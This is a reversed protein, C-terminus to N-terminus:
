LTESQILLKGPNMIGAPDFCKKISRMIGIEVESRSYGLADRKLLGIGHEASISGGFAHVLKFIHESAEACRDRFQVGNLHDPKLVNLHLNGDGIHGYWVLVFDPYFRQCREAVASLFEPVRSPTVSVDNKYPQLPAIAESIGERLRWLGAAQSRTESAVGDLVWGKAQCEAFCQLAVQSQREDELAFELVVYYPAPSVFPRAAGARVVYDMAIDSFFEFASLTVMERFARAVDMIIDLSSLALCMVVLDGPPRTLQMTAEVIVGLTGESGIAVHRLDYGTNNKILGGNLDLLDGNGTVMKVGSVWDRTMGYRIVRIGGANTAINGGIQSSGSSAFDVPYFLGQERAFEQLQGTVVGAQCIVSQNSADFDLIRNMRHMALVLEGNNAMAGGSLGTRGGSPVLPLGQERALGVVEVVERVSRPLVVVAPSADGVHSRDSGFFALDDAGTLIQEAGCITELRAVIDNDVM